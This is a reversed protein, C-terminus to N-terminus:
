PLRQKLEAFWGITVVISVGMGGAGLLGIIEYPGLRIGPMVNM